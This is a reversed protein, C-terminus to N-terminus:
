RGGRIEKEDICQRSFSMDAKKDDTAKIQNQKKHLSELVSQRQKDTNSVKGEQKQVQGAAKEKQYNKESLLPRPEHSIM